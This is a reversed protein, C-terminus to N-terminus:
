CLCYKEGSPVAIALLEYVRFLFHELRFVAYTDPFQNVPESLEQLPQVTSM